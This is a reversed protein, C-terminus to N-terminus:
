LILDSQFQNIIIAQAFHLVIVLEQRKPEFFALMQEVPMMKKLDDFRRLM